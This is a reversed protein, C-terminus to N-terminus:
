SIYNVLSGYQLTNGQSNYANIHVAAFEIYVSKGQTIHIKLFGKNWFFFRIKKIEVSGM